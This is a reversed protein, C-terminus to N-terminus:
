DRVLVYKKVPTTPFITHNAAELLLNCLERKHEVRENIYDDINLSYELEEKLAVHHIVVKKKQGLRLVRGAAQDMLAATWWPTTFIVRDMHQLNIGTGACQIQALFVVHKSGVFDEILNACDMNTKSRLFATLFGSHAEEAKKMAKESEAIVEMRQKESLAGHYSLVKGVSEQKKLISELLTIEEKFNCFIVFGHSRPSENLIKLIAEVKTSNETWDPRNYTPDRNKKSSIYIQPHVSIQRLALISNLISIM